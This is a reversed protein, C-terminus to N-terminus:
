TSRPSGALLQLVRRPGFHLSILDEAILLASRFSAVYSDLTDAPPLRTLGEFVAAVFCESVDQTM